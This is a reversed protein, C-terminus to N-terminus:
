KFLKNLENQEWLYIIIKGDPTRFPNKTTMLMNVMKKMENSQLQQGYEVAAHQAMALAMKEEVEQMLANKNETAVWLLSHLLKDFDHGEM